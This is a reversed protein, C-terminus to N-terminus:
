KVAVGAIRPSVIPVPVRFPKVDVHSFGARRIAAEIERDPHCGDAALKWVPKIWRQRSRLGTGQPAAVHEIFAFKGGPRLVRVIERLTTDLDTVSCMVFTSVVGDVSAEPLDISEATSARIEGEVGSKQLAEKLQPHMFLNPEIGIWRIGPPFFSLNDGMGPGIEVVDGQLERFVQRKYSDNIEEEVSSSSRAYVWAFLRQRLGHRGKLEPLNGTM